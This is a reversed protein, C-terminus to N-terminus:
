QAMFHCMPFASRLSLGLAMDAGEADGCCVPSLLLCTGPLTGVASYGVFSHPPIAYTFCLSKQGKPNATSKLWSATVELKGSNNFIRYLLFWTSTSGDHGLTETHATVYLSLNDFSAIDEWEPGGAKYNPGLSIARTTILWVWEVWDNWLVHMNHFGTSSLNLNKTKTKKKKLDCQESTLPFGCM